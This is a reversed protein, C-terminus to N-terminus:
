RLVAEVRWSCEGIATGARHATIVISRTNPLYRGSLTLAGKSSPITTSDAHRVGLPDIALTDSATDTRCRFEFGHALQAPSAEILVGAAPIGSRPPTAGGAPRSVATFAWAAAIAAAVIAAIFPFRTVLM